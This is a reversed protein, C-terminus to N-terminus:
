TTELLEKATGIALSPDDEISTQLRAIQVRMEPIDLARATETIASLDVSKTISVIRGDKYDFGDKRLWRSLEEIKKRAWDKGRWEYGDPNAVLGALINEYVV